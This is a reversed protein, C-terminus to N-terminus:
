ISIDISKSYEQEVMLNIKTLQLKMKTEIELILDKLILDLSDLISFESSLENPFNLNKSFISKNKQNVIFLNIKHNILNINLFVQLDNM